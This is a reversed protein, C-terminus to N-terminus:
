VGHAECGHTRRHRILNSHQSFGRGCDRCVIPKEGSHINQHRRLHSKLSFGQGCVGCVYPKEWLADEQSLQIRALATGVYMVCMLNRRQTLGRTTSLPQGGGSASGCQKCAYPKEGSHTRQHSILNSRDSFGLGCDSCVIIKELCRKEHKVFASKQRFSKGCERSVYPKEGSHARQHIILNSKQSFGRVGVSVAHSRVLTRGRM